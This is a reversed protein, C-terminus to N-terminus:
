LREVFAAAAAAAAAVAVAVAAVVPYKKRQKGTTAPL